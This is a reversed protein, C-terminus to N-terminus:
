VGRQACRDDTSLSPLLYYSSSSSFFGKSKKGEEGGWRGWPFSSNKKTKRKHTAWKCDVRISTINKKQRGKELAASLPEIITNHTLM